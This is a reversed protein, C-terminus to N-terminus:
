KSPVVHRATSMRGEALPLSLLVYVLPYIVMYVVVRNLRNLSEQHNQRFAAAQKMQRRLYFFM